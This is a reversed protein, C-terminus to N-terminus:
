TTPVTLNLLAHMNRISLEFQVILESVADRENIAQLMYDSYMQNANDLHQQLTSYHFIIQKITDSDSRIEANEDRIGGLEADDHEDEAGAGKRNWSSATLNIGEFAYVYAAMAEAMDLHCQMAHQFINKEIIIIPDKRIKLYRARRFKSLAKHWGELKKRNKTCTLIQKVTIEDTIKDIRFLYDQNIPLIQDPMSHKFFVPHNKFEQAILERVDKESLEFKRMDEVAVEEFKISIDSFNQRDDPGGPSVAASGSALWRWVHVPRAINKVEHEGADAFAAPLKGEIEGHVKGSVCIGGPSALGQLREAVNVGDGHIDDGDVVVEGLNVGIRLLMKKDDAQGAERAAMGQQIEIASEVASVASTFEVLLSDGATSVVRGGHKEIVPTWLEERHAKMRTLTDAEDAEMLRSYGVMDTLVIAALRREM